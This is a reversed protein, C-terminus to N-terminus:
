EKEPRERTASFITKQFELASDFLKQILETEEDALKAYFTGLKCMSICNIMKGFRIRIFTHLLVEIEERESDSADLLWDSLVKYFDNPLDSLRDPQVVEISYATKLELFMDVRFKIESIVPWRGKSM